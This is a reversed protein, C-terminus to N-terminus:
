TLSLIELKVSSPVRFESARALRFGFHFQALFFSYAVSVSDVAAVDTARSHITESTRNISCSQRSAGSWVSEMRKLM